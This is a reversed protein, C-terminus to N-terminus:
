RLGQFFLRNALAFTSSIIFIYFVRFITTLLMFLYFCLLVLMGFEIDNRTKLDQYSIKEHPQFCNILDSIVITSINM